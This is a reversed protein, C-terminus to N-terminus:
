LQYTSPRSRGPGLVLPAWGPVFNVSLRESLSFFLCRTRVMANSCWSGAMGSAIPALSNEKEKHSNPIQTVQLWLSRVLVAGAM